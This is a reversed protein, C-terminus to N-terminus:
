AHSKYPKVLLEAPIRWHSSITHIMAVTLQRQRNLIESARSRSQLIDSLHAQSQGMEEIAFHLVDVPDWDPTEIPWRNQEYKEILALLIDLKDGAETGPSAGWLRDVEELAARHDQDTRIPTVDM